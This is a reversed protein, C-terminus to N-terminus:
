SVRRYAGAPVTMEFRAGKGPIGNERIRIGTIALIEKVLFLGLGTNKGFGREFIKEKQEQPVGTGDDEVSILLAGADEQCDITITTVHKGHRAANDFLNFFVRELMPDAFIEYRSCSTSYQVNVPAATGAIVTELRAWGPVNIGLEQYARTFEIQTSITQAIAQIKKLYHEMDTDPEKKLAVEVFGRLATLQNRIDHRTMSNLLKFRRNAEHLADEARKRATIDTLIGDLYEPAGDPGPVAVASMSAWFMEGDKRRFRVEANTIAGDRILRTIIEERDKHDVYSDDLSSKLFEEVSDYGFMQALIPNVMIRRGPKHTTTRFVGAPLNQMLNDLQQQKHRIEEEMRRRPTIDTVFGDLFAAKGDPGPVAVASIAAWFLDGNKRKLQVEFGSVTGEKLVRLVLVKRDDPNAYLNELPAQMFEGVSEYGHLRAIVANAMVMRGNPGPVARFIGLPLNQLHTDIQQQRLRIEKELQKEGTIDLVVVIWEGEPCAQDLPTGSLLVTRVTGDKRVWNTEVADLGYINDKSYRVSGVYEYDKDSAYLFRANKGVLESMNYGSISCIKENVRMLIRDRVMLIGVPAVRFLGSLTAESQRLDAEIKKRASIDIMVGRLGAPRGSRFVPSSYVLVPFTSKDKRVASYEHDDYPIGEIVKRTNEKIREHDRPDFVQLATIGAALDKETMGFTSLASRNAYTIRMQMDMEFVVQPLLDALERYKAESERIQQENQVLTDFQGRLEEESAAIHEYAARIEDQAKRRETIDMAIHIVKELRGNADFVPTCSIHYYGGLAEIEADSPAPNEGSRIREFPCSAPPRDTGPAHFVEYCHKTRLQDQTLGSVRLMADNADIIRNEADLVIVPHGIARFITEWDKRTHAAAEEAKRLGTIDRISEIAGVVEGQRDYLPSAKGMLIKPQGKPRPLSTEAILTDKEHFIHAYNTAIVEDTEFILDILIKRRAGYFPVAYEYNGKGIMEAAPVGTMEEIARNWAIIRGDTDIIFTADPLYEIANLLRQQASWLDQEARRSSTMDYLLVQTGYANGDPTHLPTAHGHLPVATGDPRTISLNFHDVALRGDDRRMRE